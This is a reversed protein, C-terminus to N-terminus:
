RMKFMTNILCWIVRMDLQLFSNYLNLLKKDTVKIKATHTLGNQRFKPRLKKVAPAAPTCFLSFTASSSFKFAKSTTLRFVFIVPGVMMMLQARKYDEMTFIFLM